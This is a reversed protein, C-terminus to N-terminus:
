VEEVVVIEPFIEKQMKSGLTDYLIKGSSYDVAGCVIPIINDENSRKCLIVGNLKLKKHAIEPRFCVNYKTKDQISSYCWADQVDEPPLDFFSKAIIESVKYLYETGEGVDRSFEDRLFDNYIEHVTIAHEDTLGCENYNYEGGIINVKIDSLATYKILAFFDDPKIKMEKLAVMPDGPVTYLLSEGVKNLRGLTTVCEAPPEWLDNLKQMNTPPVNRDSLKRVRFFPTDKPYISSNSIYRFQNEYTLTDLIAKFLEESTMNQINLKRFQKIKQTLDRISIQKLFNQNDIMWQMMNMVVRKRENVIAALYSCFRITNYWKFMYYVIFIEAVIYVLLAHIYRLILSVCM